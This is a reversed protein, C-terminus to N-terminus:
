SHTFIANNAFSLLEMEVKTMVVFNDNRHLAYVSQNSHSIVITSNNIM